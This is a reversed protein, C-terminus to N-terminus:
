LRSPTIGTAHETSKDPRCMQSHCVKKIPKRQSSHIGDGGDNLHLLHHHGESRAKDGSPPPHIRWDGQEVQCSEDFEPLLSLCDLRCILRGLLVHPPQKLPALPHIFYM